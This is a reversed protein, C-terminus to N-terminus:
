RAVSIKGIKKEDGSHIVYIYIRSAVKQNDKNRLDWSWKSGESIGSYGYVGENLLIYIKIEITLCLNTM